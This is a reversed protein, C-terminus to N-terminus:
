GDVWQDEPRSGGPHPQAFRNSHPHDSRITLRWTAWPIAVLVDGDVTDPQLTGALLDASNTAIVLGDADILCAEGRIERM